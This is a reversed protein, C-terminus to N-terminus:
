SEDSEEGLEGLIDKCTEDGQEEDKLREVFQHFDEPSVRKLFSVVVTRMKGVM